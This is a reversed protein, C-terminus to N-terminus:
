FDYEGGRRRKLWNSGTRATRQPKAQSITGYTDSNSDYYIFRGRSPPGPKRRPKRNQANFLTIKAEHDNRPQRSFINFVDRGTRQAGRYRLRRHHAKPLRDVLHTAAFLACSLTVVAVLFKNSGTM